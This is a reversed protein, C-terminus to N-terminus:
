SKKTVKKKTKRRTKKKPKEEGEFGEIIEGEDGSPIAAQVEAAAMADQAQKELAAKRINEEQQKLDEIIRQQLENLWEFDAKLYNVDAVSLGNFTVKQVLKETLSQIRALDKKNFM